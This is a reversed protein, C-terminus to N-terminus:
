KGPGELIKNFLINLANYLDVSINKNFMTSKMYQFGTPMDFNNKGQEAGAGFLFAVKTKGSM